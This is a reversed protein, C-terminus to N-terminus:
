IVIVIGYRCNSIYSFCSNEVELRKGFHTFALLSHIKGKMLIRHMKFGIHFPFIFLNLKVQVGITTRSIETRPVWPSHTTERSKPQELFSELSCLNSM